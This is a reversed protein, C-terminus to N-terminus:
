LDICVIFTEVLYDCPFAVLLYRYTSQVLGSQPPLYSALLLIHIHVLPFIWFNFRIINREPAFDHNHSAVCYTVFSAVLFWLVNCM